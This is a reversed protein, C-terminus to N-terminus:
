VRTRNGSRSCDSATLVHWIEKRDRGSKKVRAERLSDTLALYRNTQPTTTTYYRSPSNEILTKPDAYRHGPIIGDWIKAQRFVVTRIGEVSLELEKMLSNATKMLFEDVGAGVKQRTKASPRWFKLCASLQVSDMIKKVTQMVAARNSAKAWYQSAEEVEPLALM